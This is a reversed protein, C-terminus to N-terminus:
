PETTQNVPPNLSVTHWGTDGGTECVLEASSILEITSLTPITDIKPRTLMRSPRCKLVHFDINM